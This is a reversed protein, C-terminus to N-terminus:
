IAEALEEELIETEIKLKEMFQMKYVLEKARAFEERDVYAMYEHLMADNTIQIKQMIDNLASFPEDSTRVEALAERLEMQQMLFAPDVTTEKEDAFEIGKLQLLYRARKIPTKLTHFAENILAAQQVALRRDRESANAFRDPHVTKQLERYHEALRDTDIMFGIPLGFLEFYNQSAVTSM